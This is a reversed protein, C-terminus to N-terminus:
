YWPVFRKYDSNEKFSYILSVEFSRNQTKAMSLGSTVVDYSLGLQMNNYTLGFYPIISEQNRYWGGVYLAVNNIVSNLYQGFAMGITMERSGGQMMYIASGMLVGNQGIYRTAGAHMTLRMPIDNAEINLFSEKPTTLHYISTGVYFSGNEGSNNFMLGTNWDFYGINNNVIIENSPMSLDFGFSSFQNAFSINVPDIRKNAYTSQFGISFKKSREEDLWLHYALSTSIYNSKFKGGLAKDYLGMVGVALKNGEGMRKSLIETDYSITGTIFPDGVGHWQNRFNSSLRATGDFNGTNAPNLTLPSSFYQSFHPDQAKLLFPSALFLIVIFTTKM